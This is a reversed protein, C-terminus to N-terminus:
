NSVHGVPKFHGYAQILSFLYVAMAVSNVISGAVSAALVVQMPANQVIEQFIGNLLQAPFLILASLGVATWFVPWFRGKVLEMSRRLAPRYAEGECVVIIAFFTTRVAYVIGPIILLLSWLLTTIIRLLYTLLYPLFIGSAQSRVTRFSTRARGSKAQLLRKGVSLTCADGWLLALGLLIFALIFVIQLEPQVGITEELREATADLLSMGLMPLFLFWMTVHMAAQQKRWFSWSEGIISFLNPM